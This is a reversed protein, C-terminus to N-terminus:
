FVVVVIKQLLLYLLNILADTYTSDFPRLCVLSKTSTVLDITNPTFMNFSSIGHVSTATATTKRFPQKLLTEFNSNM